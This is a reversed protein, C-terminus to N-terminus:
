KITTYIEREEERGVIARINIAIYRPIPNLFRAKQGFCNRATGILKSKTERVNTQGCTGYGNGTVGALATM